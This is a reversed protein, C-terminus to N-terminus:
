KALRLNRSGGAGELRVSESDIAAVKYEGYLSDGVAFVKGDIMALPCDGSVIANLVFRTKEGRMPLNEIKDPDVRAPRNRDFPNEPWSAALAEARRRRLAQPLPLEGM